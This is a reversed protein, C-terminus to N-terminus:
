RRLEAVAVDFHRAGCSGGLGGIDGLGDKVRLDSEKAGKTSRVVRSLQGVDTHDVTGWSHRCSFPYLSSSYM